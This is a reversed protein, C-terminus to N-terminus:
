LSNQDLVLKEKRKTIENSRSVLPSPIIQETVIITISKIHLNVKTIRIEFNHVCFNSKKHHILLEHRYHNQLITEELTLDHSRIGDNVIDEAEVLKVLTHFPISPELATSTAKVQRKNAFHM